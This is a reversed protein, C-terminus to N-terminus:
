ALSDTAGVTLDPGGGLAYTQQKNHLFHSFVGKFNQRRLLKKSQKTLKVSNISCLIKYGRISFRFTTDHHIHRIKHQGVNKM